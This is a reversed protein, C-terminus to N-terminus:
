SKPRAGPEPENGAPPGPQEKLEALEKRCQQTLWHDDDLVKALDALLAEYRRAAGAHDGGAATWRAAALRSELTTLHSEGILELNLWYPFLRAHFLEGTAALLLYHGNPYGWPFRGIPRTRVASSGSEPRLYGL